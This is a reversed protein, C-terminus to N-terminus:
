LLGGGAGPVVPVEIVTAEAPVAIDAIAGSTAPGFNIALINRYLCRYSQNVQHALIKLTTVGAFVLIWSTTLSLIISFM